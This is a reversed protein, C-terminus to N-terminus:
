VVSASSALVSVMVGGICELRAGQGNCWARRSHIPPTITLTSAEVGSASSALVSVM